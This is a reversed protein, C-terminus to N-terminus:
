SSTYASRVPIPRTAGCKNFSPSLSSALKKLSAALNFCTHLSNFYLIIVETMSLNDAEIHVSYGNLDYISEILLWSLLVTQKKPNKVIILDSIKKLLVRGYITYRTRCSSTKKPQAHQYLMNICCTSCALVRKESPPFM